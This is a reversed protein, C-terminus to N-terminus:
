EPVRKGSMEKFVTSVDPCDLLQETVFVNFRRLDVKMAQVPGSFGHDTRQIPQLTFRTILLRYWLFLSLPNGNAHGRLRPGHCGAHSSHLQLLSAVLTFHRDRAIAKQKPRGEKM